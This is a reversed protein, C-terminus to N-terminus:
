FVRIEDEAISDRLLPKVDERITIEAEAELIESVYRRLQALKVITFRRAPDADVLLAVDSDSGAEGRTTSRM